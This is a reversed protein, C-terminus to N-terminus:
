DDELAKPCDHIVFFYVINNYPIYYDLACGDTMVHHYLCYGEFFDISDDGEVPMRITIANGNKMSIDISRIDESSENLNNLIDWIVDQFSKDSM